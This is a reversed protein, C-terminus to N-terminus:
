MITLKQDRLYIEVFKFVKLDSHLLSLNHIYKNKLYKFSISVVLIINKCWIMQKSMM